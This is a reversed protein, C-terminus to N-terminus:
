DSAQPKAWDVGLGQGGRRPARDQLGGAGEGEASLAPSLPPSDTMSDPAGVGLAALLRGTPIGDPTFFLCLLFCAFFIAFGVARVQRAGRTVCVLLLAYGFAAVSATWLVDAYAWHQHGFAAAVVVAYVTVALLWKLSFRFSM